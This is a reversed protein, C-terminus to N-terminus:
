DKPLSAVYGDVTIYITWGSFDSLYSDCIRQTSQVGIGFSGVLNNKDKTISFVFVDNVSTLSTLVINKTLQINISDEMLFPLNITPYKIRTDITNDPTFNNDISIKKTLICHSDGDICCNWGDYQFHYSPKPNIVNVPTRDTKSLRNKIKTKVAEIDKKNWILDEERVM